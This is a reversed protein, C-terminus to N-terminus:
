AHGFLDDLRADFRRVFTEFSYAPNLIIEEYACDTIEKRERADMLRDIVADVNSFDRKLPLYHLNPKFIGQYNGEFLVQVTRCAAAEYNRPAICRDQIRGELHDLLRFVEEPAPTPHLAVYENYLRYAEGDVDVLDSGSETGLVGKCSGLFDLWAPGNIRDEGRSSINTHLGRRKAWPLFDEGVTQKEHTFRGAFLPQQSGRYGVDIPRADEARYPLNKFSPFVYGTHFQFFALKGVKEAPYVLRATQEDFITLLLDFANEGLYRIFENTRYHEDFKFMVKLGRYDRISDTRLSFLKALVDPEYTLSNHLLLGDYRGLDVRPPLFAGTCLNLLDVPYQSCTVLEEASQGSTRIGDPQYLAVLLLRERRPKQHAAPDPQVKALKHLLRQRDLWPRLAKPVM